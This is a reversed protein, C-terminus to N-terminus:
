QINTLEVDFRLPSDGPIRSGAGSPGYALESPILLIAKQGKRMLSIGEDWGPIVVGRGVPFTIPAPRGDAGLGADFVQNTLLTGRYIVTTQQGTTPPTGTGPVKTILYLGSRQRQVNTFSSDAIYKTIALSDATRVEKQRQLAKANLADIDIDDNCSALLMPAALLLVASTLRQWLQSTSLQHPM